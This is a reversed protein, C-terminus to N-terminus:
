ARNYRYRSKPPVENDLSEGHKNKPHLTVTSSRQELFTVSGALFKDSKKFDFIGANRLIEHDTGQGINKSGRERNCM